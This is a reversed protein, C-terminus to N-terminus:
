RESGTEIEGNSPARVDMNRAEDRSTLARDPRYKVFDFGTSTFFLNSVASFRASRQSSLKFATSAVAALEVRGACQPM